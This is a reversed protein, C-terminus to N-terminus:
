KDGEGREMEIRFRFESGKGPQSTFWIKGGLLDVYTKAITLGLGNGEYRRTTSCDAQYFRSFIDKQQEPPIGIGTDKIFFEINGNEKEYGFEVSGAPTFKIANGVLHALIQKVKYGDTIFYSDEDQSSARFSFSLDKEAATYRLQEYVCSIVQNLNTRGKNIKVM